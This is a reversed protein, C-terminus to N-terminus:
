WNYVQLHLLLQPLHRIFYAAKSSLHAGDAPWAAYASAGSPLGYSNRKMLAPDHLELQRWTSGLIAALGCLVLGWCPPPSKAIIAAAAGSSRPHRPVSLM